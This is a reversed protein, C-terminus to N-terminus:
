TPTDCVETYHDLPSNSLTKYYEKMAPQETAINPNYSVKQEMEELCIRVKFRM